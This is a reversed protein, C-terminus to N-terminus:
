SVMEYVNLLFWHAVTDGNEWAITLDGSLPGAVIKFPSNLAGRIKFILNGNGDTVSIYSAHPSTGLTDESIGGTFLAHDLGSYPTYTASGTASAAMIADIILKQSSGRTPKIFELLRWPTLNTLPETLPSENYGLVSDYSQWPLGVAVTLGQPSSPSVSISSVVSPYIKKINCCNLNFRYSPVSSDRFSVTVVVNGSLATNINRIRVIKWDPNLDLRSGPLVNIPGIVQTM